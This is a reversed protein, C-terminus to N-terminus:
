WWSLLSHYVTKKILSVVNKSGPSQRCCYYNQGGITKIRIKNFNCFEGLHQLLYRKSLRCHFKYPCPDTNPLAKIKRLLSGCILDLLTNIVGGVMQKTSKQITYQRFFLWQLKRNFIVDVMSNRSIFETELQLQKRKIQISERKIYYLPIEILRIWWLASM